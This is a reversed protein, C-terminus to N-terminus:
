TRGTRRAPVLRASQLAIRAAVAGRDATLSGPPRARLSATSRPCPNRPVRQTVYPNRADDYDFQFRLHGTFQNPVYSQAPLPGTPGCRSSRPRHRGRSAAAGSRMAVLSVLGEAALLLLLPVIPALYRAFVLPHQVWNPRAVRHACRSGGGMSAFLYGALVRDRRWLTVQERRSRRWIGLTLSRTGASGALM